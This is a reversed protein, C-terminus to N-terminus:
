AGEKGPRSGRQIKLAGTTCFQVCQPRGGCLDCHYATGDDAQLAKFPCGDVRRGPWVFKKREDADVAGEGELCKMEKCQRCLVPTSLSAGLDDRQIRVASKTTNMVGLHFLSCVLECIHCGSCVERNVRIKM